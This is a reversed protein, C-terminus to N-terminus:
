AETTRESSIAKVLSARGRSVVYGFESGIPKYYESSSTAPQIVFQDAFGDGVFIGTDPSLRQKVWTEYGIGAMASATDGFIFSVGLTADCRELMDVLNSDQEPSLVARFAALSPVVIYDHQAIEASEAVASAAARKHRSLMDSFLSDFEARLAEPESARRVDGSASESEWSELRGGADLVTVRNGAQSALASVMGNLVGFREDAQSLVVSVFSAAYDEYVAALTAKDIGVPIRGPNSSALESRFYAPTVAEPLVPIRSAPRGNWQAALAGCTRRVFALEAEDRHPIIATQFEYVADSRFVGRGALKSPVVGGTNGLIGGYETSDNMQLVIMQKFNQQVRYRVATSTAATLMFYIGYKTGERTLFALADEHEEYMEAFAAYNHIIVLLAEVERGGDAQYAAFDGGTEALLGKRRSVERKLMGFLSEIREADHSLVIDGIHPAAQFARLTEAGFDLIYVSLADPQRSTILSYVLTTVFTTKGSGAAGYLILNGGDAFSVTMPAQRQNAPDDYTGILAAARDPEDQYSHTAAVEDLYITAPIPDLWLPRTGVGEEKALNQIYETVADIQKRAKGGALSSHMQPKAQRLPQGLRSVLVVSDDYGTGARDAPHYPAGSWASQGMEFLENAGVQVYFRGTTALAAADPRKIVEMSDASEQVKLCVRFRSNSWIQDDVVGSPKQTALILHVGLSRGIRAASVLQTMFDPQQSKLEAFEDSIVLLHPLPETVAGERYLSQYKYIDINSTGTSEGAQNFIAQRRKLESQLSILSRNVAAGDLNTITGAVHPLDVFANAMGGGKYDILVFSVEHPHYNLALSLIYSMIFESKGSGTMGAILGHPGHYKEHLDLKFIEGGSDIGVPAELSQVPNNDKWRASANLHEVRGAGFMDLFTIADPLAKKASRAEVRTNALARAIAHMDISGHEDQVFQTRRGTVDLPDYFWGDQELQIVARCEKPLLQYDDYATIVTFGSIRERLIRNVAEVRAAVDRDLAFIVIHPPLDVREGTTDRSTRLAIEHDLYSSLEKAETGNSAVFRATGNANWVHPLWRAFDWRETEGEGFIFAMKMEDYSHLAALQLILDEVLRAARERDGVVGVIPTERLPLMIPVDDLTWPGELLGYYDEALDDKDITFRREVPQMDLHMPADGMGLRVSGFDSHEPAREWLGPRRSIVRDACEEISVANERLLAAQSIREAELAARASTLYEGYKHRREMERKVRNKREYRKSLVPWLVMGGVMTFSMLMTPMASAFGGGGPRLATMLSFAGMLVSSMGMTMAPGVLMMTPMDETKDPSPPPDIRMALPVVDSKTRPSRHFAYWSSSDEPEQDDVEVQQAAMPRLAAGNCTVLGDPNNLAIFGRGVVIVLGVILIVDGPRLDQAVVRRGNVFTGNSSGLDRISVRDGGLSLEAHSASVFKSAFRIDSNDARGILLNGTKPLLYKTFRRRDDTSPETRLLLTEETSEILVEYFRNAELKTHPIRERRNDVITAFRNSRLVWEGEYGEVSVTDVLRGDDDSYTVWYRGQCKEPLVLKSLADNRVLTLQM